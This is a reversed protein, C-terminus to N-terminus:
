LSGDPLGRPLPAEEREPTGRGEEAADDRYREPVHDGADLSAPDLECLGDWLRKPMLHTRLDYGRNERGRGPLGVADYFRRWMARVYREESALDDRGALARAGEEDLRVVGWRGEGMVAVRHVPDVLCFREGGMRAAFWGATLPLTGARPRFTGWLTGDAMRSFRAFQRTRECENSVSRALDCVPAVLEHSRMRALRAGQAFGLRLYRHVAEPMSPDDSACAWAVRDSPAGPCRRRFGELVRVALPGDAPVAVAREGLRPQLSCAPELRM